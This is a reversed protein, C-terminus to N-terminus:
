VTMMEAIETSIPSVIAFTIRGPSRMSGTVAAARSRSYPVWARPVTSCADIILPFDVSAGSVCTTFVITGDFGNAAAALLGGSMIPIM